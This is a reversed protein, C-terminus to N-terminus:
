DAMLQERSKGGWQELQVALKRGILYAALAEELKFYHAKDDKTPRDFVDVSHKAHNYIEGSLWQLDLYLQQPLAFRMSWVLRGMPFMDSSMSNLLGLRGIRQLLNEVHQGIMDVIYRAMERPQPHALFVAMYGLPRYAGPPKSFASSMGCFGGIHGDFVVLIDIATHPDGHDLREAVREIVNEAESGVIRQLRQFIEAQTARPKIKRM